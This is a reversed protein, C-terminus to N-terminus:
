GMWGTVMARMVGSPWGMNSCLISGSTRLSPWHKLHPKVLEDAETNGSREIHEVTFGKFYSEM